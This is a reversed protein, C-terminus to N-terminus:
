SLVSMVETDGREKAQANEPVGDELAPAPAPGQVVSEAEAVMREALERRQMNEEKLRTTVEHLPFSVINHQETGVIIHGTSRHHAVCRFEEPHRWVQLERGIGYDWVRVTRDTSCSVLYGNEPVVIMGTVASEHALIVGLAMYSHMDWMHIAGDDSSSLLFNGDLALCTVADKHGELRALQEYNALSWVHVQRDNGATIFTNNLANIKLCLVEHFHARFMAELRPMTYRKKTIDWVGVHGDFGSSLLLEAGARVGVDLCCVTNTHGSLSITSGSDPNWLRISGDDNGTILFDCHSSVLLCSIESTEEQLISLVAMDYPDWARITNDLSASYIVEAEGSGSSHQKAGIDSVCLTTVPGTHGKIESYKVDRLILWVDCSGPTSVLLEDSSTKLSTIACAGPGGKLSGAAPTDPGCLRECKFCKETTVNWFYIYGLDDGLVLEQHRTDWHLATFRCKHINQIALLMSGALSDFVRVSNDYSSTVIVQEEQVLMVRCIGLTHAKPQRRWKRLELPTERTAPMVRYASLAGQEDGVYLAAGEGMNLAVDNVWCNLDSLTQTLSFWPYLLLERGGDTKYVKITRDTSCSVLVGQAYAISTVSGGHGHLTQVCSKKLDRVSPDWVRVTRDAGGSFLLYGEQGMDEQQALVLCIVKGTHGELLQPKSDVHGTATEVRRKWCAIPGDSLAAFIMRHKHLLECRVVESTAGHPQFAEAHILEVVM